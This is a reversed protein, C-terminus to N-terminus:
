NQVLDRRIADLDNPLIAIGVRNEIWETMVVSEMIATSDVAQVVAVATGVTGDTSGSGSVAVAWFIASRCVAM